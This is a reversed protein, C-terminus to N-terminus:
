MSVASKHCIMRDEVRSGSDIGGGHGPSDCGESMGARWTSHELEEKEEEEKVM